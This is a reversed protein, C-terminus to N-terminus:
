ATAGISTCRLAKRRAIRLSPFLQGEREINERNKKECRDWRQQQKKRQRNRDAVTMLHSMETDYAVVDDLEEESDSAEYPSIDTTVGYDMTSEYPEEGSEADSTMLSLGTASHLLCQMWEDGKHQLNKLNNAAVMKTFHKDARWGKGRSQPLAGTLSPCVDRPTPSASPMTMKQLKQTRIFNRAKALIHRSEALMVAIGVVVANKGAWIYWGNIREIIQQLEEAGFGEKTSRQGQFILCVTPSLVTIDSIDEIVWDMHDRILEETWAYSPLARDAVPQGIGVDREVEMYLTYKEGHRCGWESPTPGASSKRKAALKNHAELAEAVSALARAEGDEMEQRAPSSAGPTSPGKPMKFLRYGIWRLLGHGTTPQSTTSTLM